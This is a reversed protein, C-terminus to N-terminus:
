KDTVVIKQTATRGGATMTVFYAGSPWNGIVVSTRNAGAGSRGSYSYMVRGSEDTVAVTIDSKRALSYELTLTEGRLVPNPYSLLTSELDLRYSHAAGTGAIGDNGGTGHDKAAPFNYCLQRVWTREERTINPSCDLNISDILITAWTSPLNAPTTYVDVMTENCGSSRTADTKILYLGEPDGASLINPSKTYGTVVYGETQSTIMNHTAVDLGWGADEDTGGYLAIQPSATALAPTFDQLFADWGGLGGPMQVHGTVIINGVTL